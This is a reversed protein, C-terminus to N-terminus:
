LKRKVYEFPYSIAFYMNTIVKSMILSYNDKKIM